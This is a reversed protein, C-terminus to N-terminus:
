LAPSKALSFSFLVVPTRKFNTSLADTLKIGLPM